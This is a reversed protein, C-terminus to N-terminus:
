RIDFYMGLILEFTTAQDILNFKGKVFGNFQSIPFEYGLFMGFGVRTRTEKDSYGAVDYKFSLFNLSLGMGSFFGKFDSTYYHVDAAIQFNSFKYDGGSSWYTLVPYLGINKYFKGMNVIAGIEFGTKLPDEPAMLGVQPAVATLQLGQSFSISAFMLIALIVLIFKKM